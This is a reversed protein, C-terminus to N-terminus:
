PRKQRFPYTYGLSSDRRTELYSNFVVHVLNEYRTKLIKKADNLLLCPPPCLIDSIILIFNLIRWSLRIERISRLEQFSVTESRPKPSVRLKVRRLQWFRTIGSRRQICRISSLSCLKIGRKTRNMRFARPNM